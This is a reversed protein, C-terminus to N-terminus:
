PLDTRHSCGMCLNSGCLVTTNLMEFSEGKFIRHELLLSRSEDKSTKRISLSILFAILPLFLASTNLLEAIFSGLVCRPVFYGSSFTNKLLRNCCYCFESEVYRSHM